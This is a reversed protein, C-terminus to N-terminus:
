KGGGPQRDIRYGAPVVFLSHDPETRKLDTMRFTTDGSRPDKSDSAIVIKLEDSYWREDSVVIARDNGIAGAAITTSTRTGTANVGEIVRAGLSEPPGLPRRAVKAGPGLAYVYTKATLPDLTKRATAAAPDAPVTGAGRGGRAGATGATGAPNLPAFTFFRGAGLPLQRATHDSPKLVYTVQAVPDTIWVSDDQERRLRGANDRAITFSSERKIHTGDSLTATYVTVGRGSYPAGTVLPGTMAARADQDFNSFVIVFDSPTATLWQPSQAPDPAPAITGRGRAAQADIVAPVTLMSAVVLIGLRLRTM